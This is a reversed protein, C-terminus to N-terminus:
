INKLMEDLQAKTAGLELEILIDDIKQQKEKRLSEKKNRLTQEFEEGKGVSYNFTLMKGGYYGKEVEMGASHVM